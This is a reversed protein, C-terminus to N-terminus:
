LDVNCGVDALQDRSTHRVTSQGCEGAPKIGKDAVAPAERALKPLLKRQVRVADALSAALQGCEADRLRDLVTIQVIPLHEQSGTAAPESVPAIGM